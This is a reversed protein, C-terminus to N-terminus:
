RPSAPTTVPVHRAPAPHSRHKRNLKSFDALVPIPRAQALAQERLARNTQEAKLERLARHESREHMAYYRNLRAIPKAYEPDLVDDLTGTELEGLLRTVRVRSCRAHIIRDVLLTETIGVPKYEDYAQKHIAGFEFKEDETRPVINQATLGHTVANQSSVVKGAETRPGSSHQANAINAAHKAESIM